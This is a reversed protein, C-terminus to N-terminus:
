NFMMLKLLQGGPLSYQNGRVEAVKQVRSQDGAQAELQQIRTGLGGSQIGGGGSQM